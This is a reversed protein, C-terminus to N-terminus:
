SKKVFETLIVIQQGNVRGEIHKANDPVLSIGRVATGRKATFGAGKVNLDKILVVTDGATLQAGNSDMHEIHSATDEDSTDEAKAWALVDDELYLMDLLDRAWAEHSLRSLMRWAMVQVPPAQSWMSDNLCRWHHMDIKDPNKIQERCTGCVLISTDADESTHPAIPYISLEETNACLECRTESRSELAKINMFIEIQIKPLTLINM